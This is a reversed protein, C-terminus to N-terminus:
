GESGVTQRIPSIWCAGRIFESQGGGVIDRHDNLLHLIGQLSESEFFRSVTTQLDIVGKQLPRYSFTAAHFHGVPSSSSGLPRLLPALKGGDKQSSVGVMITVGNTNTRETTFSLWDRLTPLRFVEARSHGQAPSRKLSAGLLGASEAIVIMGVMDSEAIDFCTQTLEMLTTTSRNQSPEFRVLHAMEGRCALGYLVHLTPILTGSSITYDPVNTGDTPLYAAAGGVALFEGFRDKCDAFNEGIAGLGIGFTSDPFSVTACDTDHFQWTASHDPCGLPECTLAADPHLSFIEFTVQNRDIRRTTQPAPTPQTETTSSSLLLEALGAMSLVSSVHQSPGAIILQGEIGKLQKHVQILVRIGASSIYVVEALNLNIHHVGGRIVEAFSKALHESWYADLRGKVIMELGHDCQQKIIEM